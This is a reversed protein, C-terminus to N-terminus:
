AQDHDYKQLLEYIPYPSDPRSGGTAADWRGAILRLIDAGSRHHIHALRILRDALLQLQQDARSDSPTGAAVKTGGRRHKTLLGEDALDRYVATITNPNVALEEALTRVTPLNQGTRLRGSRIATRLQSKLQESATLPWTRYITM